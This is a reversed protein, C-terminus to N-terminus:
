KSSDSLLKIIGNFEMYFWKPSTAMLEEGWIVEDFRIKLTKNTYVIGIM